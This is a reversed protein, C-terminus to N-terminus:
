PLTWLYWAPGGTAVGPLGEGGMRLQILNIEQGGTQGLQEEFLFMVNPGGHLSYGLIRPGVDATLILEVTDNALFQTHPWGHFDRTTLTVM